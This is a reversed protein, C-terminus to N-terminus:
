QERTRKKTPTSTQSETKMNKTEGYKVEKLCSSDKEGDGKVKTRSVTEKKRPNKNSASSGSAQGHKAVKRTNEDLSITKKSTGAKAPEKQKTGKKELVPVKWLASWDKVIWDVEERSTCYRLELWKKKPYRTDQIWLHHKSAKFNAIGENGQVVEVPIM